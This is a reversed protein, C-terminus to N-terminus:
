ADDGGTPWEPARSPEYSWRGGSLTMCLYSGPQEPDIDQECFVKGSEGSDELENAARAPNNCVIRRGSDTVAVYNLM